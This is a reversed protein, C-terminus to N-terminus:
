YKHKSKLVAADEKTKVCTHYAKSTMSMSNEKSCEKHIDSIQQKTLSGSKRNSTHHTSAFARTMMLSGILLVPFVRVFSM